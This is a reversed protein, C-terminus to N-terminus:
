VGMYTIKVEVVAPVGSAMLGQNIADQIIPTLQVIEQATIKEGGLSNTAQAFQLWALVRSGVGAFAMAISLYKMWNNM